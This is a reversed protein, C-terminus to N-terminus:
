GSIAIILGLIATALGVAGFVALMLRSERKAIDARLREYSTNLKEELLDIRKDLDHYHRGDVQGTNCIRDTM